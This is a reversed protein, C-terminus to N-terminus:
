ELKKLYAIEQKNLKRYHGKKLNGLSIEGIAIRELEIVKHGVAKFMKRVQRNKGEHIKIEVVSQNDEHSLIKAKSNATIYGGIDVGNELRKIDKEEIIGNITAVYTKVVEKHPHMLKNAVQGDNTFLLLGSTNYDLRGVPFIRLSIDTMLEMVTPRDQEDKVSTIYGEPKNLMLYLTERELKIVKGDVEIIDEEEVNIGMEFVCKGNVKVRKDEIIKEAHRRSAIGCMAIYKQLRM